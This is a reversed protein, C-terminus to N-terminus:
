VAQAVQPYTDLIQNPDAEPRAIFWGQVYDCGLERCVQLDAGDQVGQAIVKVGLSSALACVGRLFSRKRETTAIDTVFYRDVKIFDLTSDFLLKLESHGRGFDDAAFGVGAARLREIRGQLNPAAFRGLRESMELCLSSRSLAARSFLEAATEILGARADVLARGDINLFLTAGRAAIRSRAFAKLANALLLEELAALHGIRAAEDLLDYPTRFGLVEHGRVLAETGLTEGSSAEVIPQLVCFLSRRAAGMWVDPGVLSALDPESAGFTSGTM